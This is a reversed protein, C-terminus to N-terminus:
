RERRGAMRERIERYKADAEKRTMDGRKVAGEIRRRIGEWDVRTPKRAAGREGGREGQRGMMKRMAEMKARGQEKSIRGAAVAKRIEIGARSLDEETIRKARTQGRGAAMRHLVGVPSIWCYAFAPKRTSLFAIGGDPLWCANFNHAGGDTLRVPNGGDVDIRYLQYPQNRGTKWSFLIERADYSLDCDLIQGAPSAVLERLAKEGNGGTVSLVYLGGGPRFGEAHYTYVHTPNIERRRIAVLQSCGIEKAWTTDEGIAAGKGGRQAVRALDEDSPSAAFVMIEAAGPNMGGYSNLFRITVKRVRAVKPLKIRQPGHIMQFSGTIAPRRSSDLYVEFDRFCETMMWATRGYYVIEAVDIPQKWQLTFDARDGTKSKLVCWGRGFEAQKGDRPPVVGDVAFKPLFRRDHVSSASVTAAPALNGKVGAGGAARESSAVALSLSLIVMSCPCRLRM